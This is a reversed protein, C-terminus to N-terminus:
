NLINIFKMTQKNHKNLASMAVHLLDNFKNTNIITEDLKQVALQLQVVQDATDAIIENQMRTINLQSLILERNAELQARMDSMRSENIAETVTIVGFCM